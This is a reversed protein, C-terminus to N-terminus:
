NIPYESALYLCEKRLGESSLRYYRDSDTETIERKTYIITKIILFQFCTMLCVMLIIITNNLRQRMQEFFHSVHSDITQVRNFDNHTVEIYFAFAFYPLLHSDSTNIFHKIQQLFIDIKPFRDIYCGSLDFPVLGLLIKSVDRFLHIWFPRPYWDTPKKVFGKSEYNFLTFTPYDEILATKYGIKSFEKWIFPWDDYPGFDENQLENSWVRRGTLFPVMNPFSNDALKTLGKMYVVSGFKELSHRTQRMFRLYNVRSLSEIVLVLVSPKLPESNSQNESQNQTVGFWFHTNQYVRRLSLDFCEVAVFSNNDMPVGNKPDLNSLQKYVILNDDNELRDFFKYKCKFYLFTQRLIGSSDIFTLNNKSDSQYKCEISKPLDTLYKTLSEDFPNINIPLHCVSDNSLSGGLLIYNENFFIREERNDYYFFLFVTLVAVVSVIKFYRLKLNFM